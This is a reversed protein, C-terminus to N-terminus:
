GSPHWRPSPSGSSCSRNRLAGRAASPPRAILARRRAANTHKPRAPNSTSGPNADASWGMSTPQHYLSVAVPPLAAAGAPGTGAGGAPGAAGAGVSGGVGTGIGVIGVGVDSGSGGTSTGGGAVTGSPPM